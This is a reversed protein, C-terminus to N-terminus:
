LMSSRIAARGMVHCGFALVETVVARGTFPVEAMFFEDLDARVTAGVHVALSVSRPSRGIADLM